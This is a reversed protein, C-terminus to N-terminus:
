LTIVRWAFLAIGVTVSMAPIFFLHRFAPNWASLYCVSPMTIAGAILLLSICQLGSGIGLASATLAFALNIFGIGFFAIHALRIMRRPWSSYGGLWNSRHFFLGSVAGAVCGLLFGIWAAQISITM